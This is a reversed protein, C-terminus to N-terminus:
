GARIRLTLWYAHGWLVLVCYGVGAWIVASQAYVHVVALMICGVLAVLLGVRWITAHPMVSITTRASPMSVIWFAPLAVGCLAVLSSHWPAWLQIGAAVSLALLAASTVIRLVFHNLVMHMRTVIRTGQRFLQPVIAFDDNLLVVDAVTRVASSGSQMAIAIDAARMAPIDNLGDGIMAVCHGMRRWLAVLRAKHTPTLRGYVHATQMIEWLQADDAADIDRAHVVGTNVPIGVQRVLAHVAQPEDGSLVCVMIGLQRCEALIEDVHPRVVDALVVLGCPMLVTPLVPQTHDFSAPLAPARALMLVRAGADLWVQMDIAPYASPEVHALLVDPAGLVWVGDDRVQLSWKRASDFPVHLTVSTVAAPFAHAIARSTANGTIDGAVFAGLAAHFADTSGTIAYTDRVHLQNITMTGTKDLCLVDLHHMTEVSALHQVLGGVRAMHLAAIAYTLTLTLVLANPILGAIVTLHAIRVALPTLNSWDRYLVWVGLVCVVLMIIRMLSHIHHMLPTDVLRVQQSRQQLQQLVGDFSTVQYWAAGRVCLAGAILTDSTSRLQPESEGTLLSEDLYLHDASLIRGEAVVQDGPALLVVDGVVVTQPSVRHLADSRWVAVTPTTIITLRNLQYRARVAQVISLIVNILVVSATALADARLGVSWLAVALGIIIAHLLNAVIRWVLAVYVTIGQWWRQWWPLIQIRQAAEAHTLGPQPPVPAIM